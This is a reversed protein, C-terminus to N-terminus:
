KYLSKTSHMIIIYNTQTINHASYKIIIILIIINGINDYKMIMIIQIFFSYVQKSRSLTYKVHKDSYLFNPYPYQQSM